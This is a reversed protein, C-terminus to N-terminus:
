ILSLVIRLSWVHMEVKPVEAVYIQYIARFNDSFVSVVHVLRIITTNYSSSSKLVATCKVLDSNFQILETESALVSYPFKNTM